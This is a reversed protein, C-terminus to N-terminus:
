LFKLQFNVFCSKKKQVFFTKPVLRTNPKGWYFEAMSIPLLNKSFAESLLKPASCDGTGTPLLKGNSIDDFTRWKKDACCFRYLSYIKQLTDNCLALREKDRAAKQEPSENAPVVSLEHIKKDNPLIAAKYQEEDFLPPAWGDRNWKGEYSGSFARLVVENGAADLCVLAGFMGTWACADRELGEMMKQCVQRAKTEDFPAFM